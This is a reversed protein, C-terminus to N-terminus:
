LGPMPDFPAPDRFGSRAVLKLSAFLVSYTVVAALRRLIGLKDL